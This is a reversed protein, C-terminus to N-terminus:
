PRPQRRRYAWTQWPATAWPPHSSRTRRPQCPKPWLEASSTPQPLKNLQLVALWLLSLRRCCARWAGAAFCAQWQTWLTPSPM